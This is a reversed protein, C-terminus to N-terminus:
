ERLSWVCCFCRPMGSAGKQNLWAELPKRLKAIAVKKALKQALPTTAQMLRNVFAPPDEVAAQLEELTDVAELLPVM